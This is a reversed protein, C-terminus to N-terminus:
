KKTLSALFSDFDDVPVPPPARAPAADQQSALLPNRQSGEPSVPSNLPAISRIASHQSQPQPQFQPTQLQLPPAFSQAAAATVASPPKLAAFDQSVEDDDLDLLSFPSKPPHAKPIPQSVSPPPITGSKHAELTQLMADHVRLSLAFLDENLYGQTGAEIVDSMRESCADLFAVVELITEDGRDLGAALLDCYLTVKEQVSNLDEELKICDLAM